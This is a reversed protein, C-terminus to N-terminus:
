NLGKVARRPPSLSGHGKVNVVYLRKGDPSVAIGAPYWGVPIMGVLRSRKGPSAEAGPIDRTGLAVVAVCNNTGNAVYLTAGDPSLALANSGSGFPLRGEPKCGITEIVEDIRTDIVSVTDSNANAVYLLRRGPGLALGCPHLGVRISKVQRWQKGERALVSVTCDNAVNTRADIRVPTGSSLSQPEGPRPPDGGWNSVYCRDERPFCVAFPAVGVAFAAPAAGPSAAIRQVNNARTAAAWLAGDTSLALGAPNPPGSVAPPLLEIPTDWRYTGDPQRTAVRVFGESDTELVREGDVALGVVSFFIEEGKKPPAPLALTQRISPTATDIFVLDRLNKVVLTRGADALACDVPRGPFTIQKGAPRLVQNTPLVISADAQLGVRLQDSEGARAFTGLLLFVGTLRRAAPSSM